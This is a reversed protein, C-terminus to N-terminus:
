QSYELRINKKDERAIKELVNKAMKGCIRAHCESLVLDDDKSINLYAPDEKVENWLCTKSFIAKGREWLEPNTNQIYKDWLHTYEHVAVNSDMVEPDLYIKDEHIFGYTRGDSVMLQRSSIFKVLREKTLINLDLGTLKTAREGPYQKRHWRSGAPSTKKEWEETRKKDMYVLYGSEANSYVYDIENNRGYMSTIENIIIRGKRKNVAIPIIISRNKSDKRETFFVYSDERTRSKFVMVPDALLDPVARVDDMMLNHGQSDNSNVPEPRLVKAITSSEIEILEDAIGLAKMVPPIKGVTILQRPNKKKNEWDDLSKNFREADDSDFTFYAKAEGASLNKVSKQLVAELNLIRHFEEKDAIVEIGANEFKQVVYNLTTQKIDDRDAEEFQEPRKRIIGDDSLGTKSEEANINRSFKTINEEQSSMNDEQNNDPKKFSIKNNKDSSSISPINVINSKLIVNKSDPQLNDIPFYVRAVNSWDSIKKDDERAIKKLVNQALNGCIRAHCESLVLDDDKSIDSYAPDSVVQKWLSTNKFVAKGKEWLEPNTNQIYKDWLHTYEHVAVNSDMVEPDLYIKGEHIFGYTKENLM